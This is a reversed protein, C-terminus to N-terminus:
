YHNQHVLELKETQGLWCDRDSILMQRHTVAAARHVHKPMELLVQLWMTLTCRSVAVIAETTWHEPAAALARLGSYPMSNTDTPSLASLYDIGTLHLFTSITCTTKNLSVIRHSHTHTLSDCHSGAGPRFM